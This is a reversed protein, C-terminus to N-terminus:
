IHILGSLETSALLSGNPSFSLQVCPSRMLEHLTRVHDTEGNRVSWLDVQHPYGYGTALTGSDPSWAIAWVEAPSAITGAEELEPIAFLKVMPLKTDPDVCAVAAMAGDPSLRFKNEMGSHTPMEFEETKARVRVPENADRCHLEHRGRGHAALGELRIVYRGDSTLRQNWGNGVSLEVHEGSSLDYSLAPAHEAPEVMLSASDQSFRMGPLWDGPHELVQSVSLTEIDLIDIRFVGARKGSRAIWKGDPSTALAISPGGLNATRVEQRSLGHLYRWLWGRRDPDRGEPVHARLISTLLKRDYSTAAALAGKMDSAYRQNEAMRRAKRERVNSLLALGLGLVLSAAIATVALTAGRNRRVFKRFKYLTSPAAATVPEEKLFRQVDLALANATEYRRQREKELAKLVIWDLDQDIHSNQVRIDSGGSARRRIETIRTSPKPPVEDRIIRFMGEQGASQFQRADFPTTGTLLEYLLVGLAYIDTRTDVDSGDIRAQEPSMYAPTGIFPHLRTLFTRDTLKGEIAKAIGFDIVKPVPSGDQMTVLVNNPKLDRHIIGKQHAHQVAACIDTFLELRQRTNLTHENCFRTVPTGKVLEMVFYPRRSETAGADIIRAINPHDMMALAQREAEFRAIVEETDMGAKIVKLAVQRKVPEAQEARFVVGMGGRGIEEVLHYRGVQTGVTESLAQNPQNVAPEALFSDDIHHALLDEVAARLITDEGCAQDLYAAQGRTPVSLAALFIARQRDIQDSHEFLM